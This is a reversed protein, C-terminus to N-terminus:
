TWLSIQLVDERGPIYAGQGGAFGRVRNVCEKTASVTAAVAGFSQSQYPGDRREDKEAAHGAYSIHTCGLECFWDGIEPSGRGPTVKRERRGGGGELEQATRVWRRSRRV